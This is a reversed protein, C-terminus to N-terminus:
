PAITNSRFARKFSFLPDRYPIQPAFPHPIHNNKTLEKPLDVNNFAMALPCTSPNGGWSWTRVNTTASSNCDTSAVQKQYEVYLNIVM